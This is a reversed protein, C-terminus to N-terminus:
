TRYAHHRCCVRSAPIIQTPPSNIVQQTSSSSASTEQIIIKAEAAKPNPCLRPQEASLVVYLNPQEFVSVLM